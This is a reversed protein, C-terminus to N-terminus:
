QAAHPEIVDLAFPLRPRELTFALSRQDFNTVFLRGPAAYTVDSAGRFNGAIATLRDGDLRMVQNTALAAVYITGDPTVTLGGFGPANAPSGHRYLTETTGDATSVRYIINQTGDAILLADRAPDYALGGPESGQGSGTQAPSSWWALGGGGDSNFRWVEDRARDSVYVCGQGDLTIDYPLVFGRADPIAAFDSVQGDPLLQKISGGSARIDADVHDVVLLRGDPTYALGAAAGIADRTGPIETVAADPTIRYIAGTKYSATYITGDPAAAVFAPYGDEGPLAAFERVTLGEILAVALTRPASNLAGLILVGSIALLALLGGGFLLVFVLVRQRRSSQQLNRLM